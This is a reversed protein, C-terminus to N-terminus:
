FPIPPRSEKHMSSIAAGLDMVSQNKSGARRVSVEEKGAESKGCILMIPIRLEEARRIKANLPENETWAEVRWNNARYMSVVKDVYATQDATISMVAVQVPSLWVPLYGDGAELLMAIFREFSGYLARHIVVPTQESNDNARYKLEFRQPLQFDLQITATQWEKDGGALVRFDIKPGYFAGDGENVTYKTDGLAAKLAAEAHDWQEVSGMFDKPRTSLYVDFPLMFMKLYLGNVLHILWKVEDRIQDPALFIHADDQCFSRVRTLGGLSGTPENRHLVSHDSYRVPLDRYSWAQQRFLEMHGPCNMPKLCYPANEPTPTRHVPNSRDEPVHDMVHFMNQKYHDWHGSIKFLDNKWMLPTRVEQYGNLACLEKVLKELLNYIITGKPKWIASGPALESFAFLDLAQGVERHDRNM